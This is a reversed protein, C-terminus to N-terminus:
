WVPALYTSRVSDPRTGHLLGSSVLSRFRRNKITPLSQYFENHLHGYFRDDGRHRRRSYEM